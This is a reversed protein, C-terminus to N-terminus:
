QDENYIDWVPIECNQNCSYSSIVFTYLIKLAYFPDENLQDDVMYKMFFSKLTSIWYRSEIDISTGTINRNIYKQLNIAVTNWYNLEDECLTTEYIQKCYGFDRLNNQLRSITNEPSDAMFKISEMVADTTIEKRHELKMYRKLSSFLDMTWKIFKDDTSFHYKELAPLHIKNGVNKVHINHKDNIDLIRAEILSESHCSEDLAIKYNIAADIKMVYNGGFLNRMPTGTAVKTLPESILKALMFDSGHLDTIPTDDSDEEKVGVKFEFLIIDYNSLDSDIFKDWWEAINQIDGEVFAVHSIQVNNELLDCILKLGSHINFYKEIMWHGVNNIMDNQLSIVFYDRGLIGLNEIGLHKEVLGVSKHLYHSAGGLEGSVPQNSSLIIIPIYGCKMIFKCTEVAVNVFSFDEKFFPIIAAFCKKNSM